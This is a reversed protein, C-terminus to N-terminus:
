LYGSIRHMWPQYVVYWISIYLAGVASVYCVMRQYVICGCSIYLMHVASIYHLAQDYPTVLLWVCEM